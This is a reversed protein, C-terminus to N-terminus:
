KRFCGFGLFFVCVVGREAEFWDAGVRWDIQLDEQFFRGRERTAPIARSSFVNVRWKM